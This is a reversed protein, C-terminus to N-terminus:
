SVRRPTTCERGTGSYEYIRNPRNVCELWCAAWAAGRERGPRPVTVRGRGRGNGAAAGVVHPAMLLPKEEAEAEKEGLLGERATEGL